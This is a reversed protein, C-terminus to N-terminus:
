SLIGVSHGAVAHGSDAAVCCEYAVSGGEPRSKHVGIVINITTCNTNEVICLVRIRDDCADGDDAAM